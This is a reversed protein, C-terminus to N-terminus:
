LGIAWYTLTREEAPYTDVTSSIELIPIGSALATSRNINFGQVKTEDTISVNVGAFLCQNDFPTPFNIELPENGAAYAIKGTKLKFYGAIPIDYFDLNNGPGGPGYPILSLMKTTLTNITGLDDGQGFLVGVISNMADVVPTIFSSGLDQIDDIQILGEPAELAEKIQSLLVYVQSMGVLGSNLPHTHPLSPFTDPADTWNLLFIDNLSLAHFGETELGSGSTPYNGGMSQYNMRHAGSANLAVLAVSGYIQKGISNSADQYAHGFVYHTGEELTVGNADVLSFSEKYFPAYTPILVYPNTEGAWVVTRVENTVKNAPLFGTPDFALPMIIELTFYFEGIYNSSDSLM